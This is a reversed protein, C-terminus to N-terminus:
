SRLLWELAEERTEFNAVKADLHTATIMLKRVNEQFLSSGFTASKDYDLDKGIKAAMQRAEDNMKGEHRADALILVPKHQARLDRALQNIKAVTESLSEATQDGIKKVSIIDNDLLEIKNNM